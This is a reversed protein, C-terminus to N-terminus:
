ENDSSVREVRGGYRDYISRAGEVLRWEAGAVEDFM